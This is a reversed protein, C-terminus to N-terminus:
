TSTTAPCELERYNCHFICSKGPPHYLKACHVGRASRGLRYLGGAALMGLLPATFYVWWANWQHAPLASGFTRAPNMSMGSLPAEFTVYVAVLAGAFLGTLHSLAKTNSTFLVTMMLFASILVEAWFAVLPGPEGPTTVVYNVAADRLVEGLLWSSVMVGAVGGCFQAVVYFLADWGRVKGLSFFTLTVSPNLHAGSRQGWPSYIIAIATSGMAIGIVARRWLADPIAQRVPSRPYELLATFLCASLMFFGLGAAEM